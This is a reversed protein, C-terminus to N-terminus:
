QRQYRVRNDSIRKGHILYEHRCPQDFEQHQIKRKRVSVNSLGGGGMPLWGGTSDDRMMVQARVRVESNGSFFFETIWKELFNHRALCNLYSKELKWLPIWLKESWLILPALMFLPVTSYPQRWFLAYTSHAVQQDKLHIYQIYSNQDTIDREHSLVYSLFIFIFRM